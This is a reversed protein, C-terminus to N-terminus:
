TEREGPEAVIEVLRGFLGDVSDLAEQLEEDNIMREVAFARLEALAFASSERLCGSLKRVSETLMREM